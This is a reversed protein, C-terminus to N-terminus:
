TIGLKENAERLEKLLQARWKPFESSREPYNLYHKILRRSKGAIYALSRALKPRERVRRRLEADLLVRLFNTLLPFRPHERRKISEIDDESLFYKMGFSIDDNPLTQLYRRFVEFGAM